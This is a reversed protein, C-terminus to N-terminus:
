EPEIPKEEEINKVALFISDMLTSATAEAWIQNRPNMYHVKWVTDSDREQWKEIRFGWSLEDLRHILESLSFELMSTTHYMDKTHGDLGLAM